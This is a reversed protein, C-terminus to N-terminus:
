PLACQITLTAGELTKRLMEEWNKLPVEEFLQGTPGSVEM